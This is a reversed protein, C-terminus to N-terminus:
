TLIADKKQDGRHTLTKGDDDQHITSQAMISDNHLITEGKTDAYGM